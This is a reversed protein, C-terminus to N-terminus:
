ARRPLIWTSSHPDPRGTKSRWPWPAVNSVNARSARLSASHPQRTTAMSWRPKPREDDRRREVQPTKAVIGGGHEVRKAESADDDAVRHASSDGEPQGDTAGLDEALV